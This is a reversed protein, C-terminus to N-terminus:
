TRVGDTQQRRSRRLAGPAPRRPLSPPPAARSARRRRAAAPTASERRATGRASPTAISVRYARPSCRAWSWPARILGTSPSRHNTGEDSPRPPYRTLVAGAAVPAARHEQGSACRPVLHLCMQATSNACCAWPARGAAPPAATAAAGWLAGAHGWGSLRPWRPSRVSASCIPAFAANRKRRMWCPPQAASAFASRYLTFVSASPLGALARRTRRTARTAPAGTSSMRLPRQGGGPAQGCQPRPSSDACEEQFASVPTSLRVNIILRMESSRVLCLWPPSRCQVTEPASRAPVVFRARQIALLSEHNHTQEHLM